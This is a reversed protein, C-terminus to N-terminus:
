IAAGHGAEMNIHKWTDGRGIMSVTSRNVKFDDAITQHNEGSAVRRRVAVVQSGTLKARVNREGRNDTGHRLKDAANDSPGAWRIHQPNVCLRQGCAHSAQSKPTPPEGQTLRCMLRHAGTLRGDSWIAGYGNRYRSKFPWLLCDQDEHSMRETLWIMAEGRGAMTKKLPDGYRSWKTYHAKCYGRAFTPKGCKDIACDM